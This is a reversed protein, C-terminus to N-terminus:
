PKGVQTVYIDLDGNRKDQWLVYAQGSSQDVAVVPKYAEFGDPAHDVRSNTSWSAGFDTSTSMYIHPLDDGTRSDRWVAHLKGDPSFAISPDRIWGYDSNDNLMENKDTLWAEGHNSSRNAYIDFEDHYNPDGSYGNNADNREDAWVVVVHGSDDSAVVIDRAADYWDRDPGADLRADASWTAGGDTSRTFYPKYYDPHGQYVLYITDNGKDVALRPTLAWQSHNDADVPASFSSGGNVSRAVAADGYHGDGTRDYWAVYVNDKSDVEVDPDWQGDGNNYVLVNEEFVSEGPILNGLYIDPNQSFETTSGPDAPNPDNRWDEWVVYVDGSSAVAIHPNRHGASGAPDDNVRRNASWTKGFDHSYAYYIDGAKRYEGHRYDEWVAHLAGDPGVALDANLQESGGPDDDVRVDGGPEPTPEPTPDPTPEPTPEPTPDPTPSPYPGPDEGPKTNRLIMPLYNRVTTQEVKDPHRNQDVTGDGNSDIALVPDRNGSEIKISGKTQGSVTVGEYTVLLSSGDQQPIILDLDYTGATAGSFDLDFDASSQSVMGVVYGEDSALAFSGPISREDITGGNMELANGQEDTMRFDIGGAQAAETTSSVLASQIQFVFITDWGPEQYVYDWFALAVRGLTQGIEDLMEVACQVAQGGQVLELLPSIVPINAVDALWLGVKGACAVYEQQEWLMGLECLDAGASAVELLSALSGAIPLLGVLELACSTEAGLCGDKAVLVQNATVTQESEVTVEGEADWFGSKRFRTTYTAPGAQFSYMGDEGTDVKSVGDLAVDVSALAATDQDVVKGSLTGQSSAMEVAAAASDYASLPTGNDALRFFYMGEYAANANAKVNFEIETHNGNTLGIATGAPNQTDYAVGAQKSGTGLGTAFTTTAIAAGNAFQGTNSLYFPAAGSATPVKAFGSTSSTSWELQPRWDKPQEGDNYVQFRVRFNTDRPVGAAATGAAAYWTMSSLPQDYGIRYQAQKIAGPAPSGNEFWDVQRGEPVNRGSVLDAKEDGNLDFVEVQRVGGYVDGIINHYTFQESGNNEWWGLGDESLAAAVDLDGDLDFDGPRASYIGALSTSNIARKTFSESGNNEWWALLPPSGSGSVLIDTHTDKDLDVAWVSNTSGVAAVYHRSFAPSDAGNNEWWTIEGNGTAVLDVHTDGDVDAAHVWDQEDDDILRNAFAGSGDNEWWHFDGPGACVIDPASDGNLDAVFFSELQTGSATSTILHRTFSESGDNEFWALGYDGRGVLDMHSDSNIKGASLVYTQASNAASSRAAFGSGTNRYWGLTVSGGPTSNGAALIDLKEDGDVDAAWAHYFYLGSDVNHKSFSASIAREGLLSPTTVSESQVLRPPCVLPLLLAMLAVVSWAMLSRIKM